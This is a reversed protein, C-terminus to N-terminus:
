ATEEPIRIPLDGAPGGPRARILSELASRQRDWRARALREAEPAVARLEDRRRVADALGEAIGHADNSVHVAFPFAARLGPSDTVVLPRRAWVAEYGVRVISTEDTTLALVIDADLIARRYRAGPLFGVFGVNDPAEELLGEPAREPSGTIRVDVDPLARAAEVVADVPEDRGFIGAFLVQPRTAPTESADPAWAAPAEHVIQARGGWAEVTEALEPVTVLTAASRRAAWRHLPQFRASFSDGQLGFGGPHSDLLVPAGTTRGWLVGLAGAFVPPNTVILARPRRVLLWAITAVASLLYRLPKLAGPASGLPHFCRAVGGLEAAIERSRGCSGTWAIFAVSPRVKPRRM